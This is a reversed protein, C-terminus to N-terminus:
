LIAASFIQSVLLNFVIDLQNSIVIFDYYVSQKAVEQPALNYLSLKIVILTHGHDKGPSCPIYMGFRHEFWVVNKMMSKSQCEM